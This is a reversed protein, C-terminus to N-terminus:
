RLNIAEVWLRGIKVCITWQYRAFTVWITSHTCLLLIEAYVLCLPLSDIESWNMPQVCNTGAVNQQSYWSQMRIASCTKLIRCDCYTWFASSNWVIWIWTLRGKTCIWLSEALILLHIQQHLMNERSKISSSLWKTRM